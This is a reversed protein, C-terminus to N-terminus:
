AAIPELGFQKIEKIMKDWHFRRGGGRGDWFDKFEQPNFKMSEGRPRRNTPLSLHSEVGQPAESDYCKGKLQVWAHGLTSWLEVHPWLCYAYYAWDYCYGCNVMTLHDPYYKPFFVQSIFDADFQAPKVLMAM